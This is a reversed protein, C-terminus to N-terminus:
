IKCIIQNEYENDQFFDTQIIGNAEYTYKHKIPKKETAEQLFWEYEIDLHGIDIAQYGIRHLDYALVTATPGLAILILSGEKNCNKVAELIDNYRNFANESPAIIRQISKAKDLLGNGVGFRSYEGEIILLDRNTWIEMIKLFYNKCSTKDKIAIYNRTFTSSYYKKKRNIYKYWILRHKLLYNEWWKKSEETRISLDQNCFVNPICVLLNESEVTLIEKLRRSLEDSKEQFSFESKQTLLALEGDGFRTVSSKRQIITNITEEHGAVSPAKFILQIFRDFLKLIILNM